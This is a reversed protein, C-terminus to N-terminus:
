KPIDIQFTAGEENRITIHGDLKETFSKILQLGLSDAKQPLTDFPLGKGNDRVILRHMGDVDRLSVSIQGQNQDTFAHKLANSLLENTILGIPVITDIDLLLDQVGMEFKVKNDDIQYTSMLNAILDEFYLKVNVTKLDKNSYLKQHLLAMSQVRSKSVKLVDQAVTDDVYRSQLGLLSSIVQLNNKVRHHIEKLLVTKDDLAATLEAKQATILKNQSFIRFLLLALAVLGLGLMAIWTNRGRIVSQNLEDKLALTEIEADKKETEYKAEVEAVASTISANKLSDTADKWKEHYSLAQAANRNKKHYRYSVNYLAAQDELTLDEDPVNKMLSYAEDYRDLDALISGKLFIAAGKMGNDKAAIATEIAKESEALAEQLKGAKKHTTGINFHAYTLSTPMDHQLMFDKFETYYHVASDYKEQMEYNYGMDNIVYSYTEYDKTNAGLEYAKRVYQLGKKLNGSQGLLTGIRSLVRVQGATDKTIEYLKISKEAEETAREFERMDVYLNLLVNHCAAMWQTDKQAIKLQQFRKFYAESEAFKRENKLLVGRYYIMKEGKYTNGVSDAFAEVRDLFHFSVVRDKRAYDWVYSMLTEIYSSDKEIRDSKAELRDIIDSSSEQAAIESCPILLCLISLHFFKFLNTM